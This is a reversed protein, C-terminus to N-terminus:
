AMTQQRYESELADRLTHSYNLNQRSAWTDLWAPITVNKRVARRGYKEAYADMDLLILAKQANVDETDVDMLATARPAPRGDELETLVWGCAADQVMEMTESLSSGYTVLGPMDPVTAVYGGGDEEYPELIVPYTLKM